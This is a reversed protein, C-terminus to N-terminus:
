HLTVKGTKWENDGNRATFVFIEPSNKKASSIMFEKTGHAVLKGSMDFLLVETLLPLSSWSVPLADTLEYILLANSEYCGIDTALGSPRNENLIDTAPAAEGSFNGIGEDVATGSIMLSFIEADANEFIEPGTSIFSAADNDTAEQWEALSIVTDGDDISLRNTTINHDCHLTELVVEDASISGRYPHDSLLINNFVVLNSSGNTLNLAWRADSSQIITNNVVTTGHCPEAADIMYLSIGSAHNNYILNNAIYSDQVGDCNIGSGGGAGNEYIINKEVVAGSIIGDGGLSADANMHIGNAHNFRCTNGRIVPNDASNGFYIGHEDASYECINNEILINESFGTLIGWKGNAICHNNRIIVGENIVSRIGARPMGTITFGEVIVYNSGELNIGDNTTENPEDINVGPLASFLIPASFTGSTSHYFGSYTGPQIVVSDGALVVDSAHQLTLFAESLSMGANNDDGAPSVYYHTANIFYSPLLAIITLLSRM